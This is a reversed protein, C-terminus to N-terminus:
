SNLFPINHIIFRWSVGDALMHPLYWFLSYSILLILNLSFRGLSLETWQDRFIRFSSEKDVLVILFFIEVLLIYTWRGWDNAIIYVPLILFFAGLLGLFFSRSKIIKKLERFLPYLAISVLILALPYIIYYHGFIISHFTGKMNEMTSVRLADIAGSEKGRPDLDVTILANKIAEIQSLSAQHHFIVVLFIIANFSLLVLLLLVSLDRLGPRVKDFFIACLLPFIVIGVEDTLIILPYLFLTLFFIKQFKRADYKLSSYTIIALVAFYLIEKRYGGAISNIAYTFLFPSFILFSYKVLDFKEKLIKWSFFFFIGFTISQLGVLYIAPSVGTVKALLFLVEGILGRRVFGGEYNILWDGVNFGERFGVQNWSGISILIFLILFYIGIFKKLFLNVNSREIKRYFFKL